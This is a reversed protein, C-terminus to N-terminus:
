DVAVHMYHRRLESCRYIYSLISDMEKSYETEPFGTFSDKSRKVNCHKDFHEKHRNMCYLYSTSVNYNRKFVLWLFDRIASRKKMKLCRAKVTIKTSGDNTRGGPLRKGKLYRYFALLSRYMDGNPDSENPFEKLFKKVARKNFPVNSKKVSCIYSEITLRKYKSKKLASAFSVLVTKDSTSM